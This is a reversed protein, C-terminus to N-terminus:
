HIYKRVGSFSFKKNNKQISTKQRRRHNTPPVTFDTFAYLTQRNIKDTYFINTVVRTGGENDNNNTVTCGM